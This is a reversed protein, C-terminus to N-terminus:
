NLTWRTEKWPLTPALACLGIKESYLGDIGCLRNDPDQSCPHIRGGPAEFRDRNPTTASGMTAKEPFM